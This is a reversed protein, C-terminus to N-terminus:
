CVSVDGERQWAGGFTKRPEGASGEPQCRPCWYLNRGAYVELLVPSGCVLCEQGARRYVYVEGGHEDVRAERHQAQPSHQPDVTDIRGTTVDVSMLAALDQWMSDFVERPLQNAPLKPDVGHRFLVEARYINGVGAFVGQDMLLQAITRKAKHIKNWAREPDADPRLPDPGSKDIVAQKEQPTILRCWQPGRLEAGIKANAILLRLTEFNTIEDLPKFRFKGILGLHIWVCQQGAFNIFLHKGVADADVLVTGDLLGAADAFRGQPSSVRVERGGFEASLERTIKHIVHGEPMGDLM